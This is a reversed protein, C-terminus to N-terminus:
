EGGAAAKAAPLVVVFRSGRGPESSATITGGHRDVIERAIALGLGSGTSPDTQEGRNARDFIGRLAEAGIGNGEDEVAIQVGGADIKAELRVQRGAPSYKCANHVLNSLVRRMGHPDITMVPDCNALVTKSCQLGAIQVFEELFVFEQVIWQKMHLAETSEYAAATEQEALSLRFLDDIFRTIYRVKGYLNELHKNQEGPQVQIGLMMARIGAQVVTLPSRVDHSINQLLESRRRQSQVLKETREHVTMELEENWRELTRVLKEQNAIMQRQAQNKEREIQRTQYSLAAALIIFEAISGIQYGYHTLVSYDALGFTYLVSPAACGIIAMGGLVMYRAAINGQFVSFFISAILTLGVAMEYWIAITSFGPWHFLLALIVFPSVWQVAQAAYRLGPAYKDLQLMRRLFLLAFWLCMIFLILFVGESTDFTRLLLRIVGSREGFLEQPLGNWILQSLAFFFVYLAYFVYAANRMFVFLSFMYAAMLLVFGYYLGFLVYETRLQGQYAMPRMLDLPLIMSGGTTARLYLTVDRGEPLALEYAWYHDDLRFGAAGGTEGSLAQGDVYVEVTDVTANSLRLVWREQQSENRITARMWYTSGDLGFASRGAAPVFREAAPSAQAGAYTLAGEPDPLVQMGANLSVTASAATLRVEDGRGNDPAKEREDPMFFFWVFAIGVVFLLIALLFLRNREALTKSM